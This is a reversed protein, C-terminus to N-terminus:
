AKGGRDLKSTRKLETLVHRFDEAGVCKGDSYYSSAYSEGLKHLPAHLEERIPVEQLLRSIFEQPTEADTRIIGQRKAWRTLQYFQWYIPLKFFSPNRRKWNYQMRKILTLLFLWVARWFPTRALRIRRINRSSIPRKWQNLFYSFLWLMALIFLIALVVLIGFLPLEAQMQGIEQPITFSAGADPLQQEGPEPEPLLSFLWILGKLIVSVLWTVASWVSTSLGWLGQRVSPSLLIFSFLMGLLLMGMMLVPLFGAKGVARTEVDKEEEGGALSLTIGILSLFVSLFFLLHVHISVAAQTYTFLIFLAYYIINGEFRLVMQLRTPEKFVFMCSRLYLYSIALSLALTYAVHGSYMATWHALLCGSLLGVNILFLWIVTINRSALGYNIGYAIVAPLFWAFLQPSVALTWQINVLFYFAYYLWVAECFLVIGSRAM